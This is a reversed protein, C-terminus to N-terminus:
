PLCYCISISLGLPVRVAIIWDTMNHDESVQGTKRKFNGDRFRIQWYVDKKTEDRPIVIRPPLLNGRINGAATLVKDVRFHPLAETPFSMSTVFQCQSLLPHRNHLEDCADNLMGQSIAVIQDYWGGGTADLRTSLKTANEADASM